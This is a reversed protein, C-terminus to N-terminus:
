HDGDHFLSKAPDYLSFYIAPDNCLKTTESLLEGAREPTNAVSADGRAIANQMYEWSAMPVVIIRNAFVMGESLTTSSVGIQYSAIAMLRYSDEDAKAIRINKPPPSNVYSFLDQYREAPHLKYVFDLEPRLQAVEVIFRFLSIGVLKQSFVAVLNNIKRQNQYKELIRAIHPAGFSVAKVCSPLNSEKPWSPGFCMLEDPFYPVEEYGPWAYQIHYPTITGHQFEISKVGAKRAASLLAFYYRNWCLYVAKIQNKEFLKSFMNEYQKFALMQTKVLAATRASDLEYLNSIKEAFGAIEEELGIRYFNRTIFDFSKTDIRNLSFVKAQPKGLLLVDKGFRDEVPQTLGYYGGLKRPFASVLVKYKQKGALLRVTNLASPIFGITEKLRDFLRTTFHLLKRPSPSSFFSRTTSKLRLLVRRGLPVTQSEGKHLINRNECFQYFLQGRVLRWPHIGEIVINILDNENQIKLFEHFAISFDNNTKV